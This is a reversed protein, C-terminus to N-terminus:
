TIKVTGADNWLHGASAPASTPLNLMRVMGNDFFRVEEVDGPSFVIDAGAGVRIHGETLTRLYIGTKNGATARDGVRLAGTDDGTHDVELIAAPENDSGVIIGDEFRVGKAFGRFLFNTPLTGGTGKTYAWMAGREGALELKIAGNNDPDSKNAVVFHTRTNTGSPYLEFSGVTDTSTPQVTVAAPAGDRAKAIRTPREVGLLIGDEDSKIAIDVISLSNTKEFNDESAAIQIIKNADGAGIIPFKVYDTENNFATQADAQSSSGEYGFDTLTLYKGSRKWCGTGTNEPSYWAASGIVATHSPDIITGGNHNQKDEGSAWYFIGRGGDAVQYFGLVNASITRPSDGINYSILDSINTFSIDPANVLKDDGKAGAILGANSGIEKYVPKLNRSM